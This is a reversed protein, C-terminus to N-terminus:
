EEESQIGYLVFDAFMYALEKASVEGAPNFWQYSWNTVGLIAFSTMRPHLGKRFEGTQIGQRIIEEITLQFTERKAKIIKANDPALNRMERFYVRGNPGQTEIDEILLMVTKVVKGRNDSESEMIAQQRNLLDDIYRLHIDMLLTEKSTFYYYFTGKTVDLADVIDQISTESFGKQQFLLVSQKIIKEKM